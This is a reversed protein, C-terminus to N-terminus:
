GLLAALTREGTSLTKNLSERRQDQYKSINKDFESLINLAEPNKEFQDGFKNRLRGMLQIRGLDNYALNKNDIGVKQLMNPLTSKTFEM